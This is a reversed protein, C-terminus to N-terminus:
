IEKIQPQKSSLLLLFYVVKAARDTCWHLSVGGDVPRAHMSVASEITWTFTSMNQSHLPFVKRNKTPSSGHLCLRFDHQTGVTKGQCMESGWQNHNMNKGFCSGIITWRFPHVEFGYTLTNLAMLWSDDVIIEKFSHQRGCDYESVHVRRTIEVRLTKTRTVLTFPPSFCHLLTGLGLPVLGEDIGM